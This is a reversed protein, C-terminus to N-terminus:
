VKLEFELMLIKTQFPYSLWLNGKKFFLGIGASQLPIAGPAIAAGATYFVGIHNLIKIGILITGIQKGYISGGPYGKVRGYALEDEFTSGKFLAKLLFTRSTATAEVHYRMGEPLVKLRANIYDGEIYPEIFFGERDGWEYGSRLGIKTKIMGSVINKCVGAYIFNRNLFGKQTQGGLEFIWLNVRANLFFTDNSTFGSSELSEGLKALNEVRAWWKGEIREKSIGLGGTFRLKPFSRYKVLHIDGIKREETIKIFDLARLQELNEEKLGGIREKILFEPIDGKIAVYKNREKEGKVALKVDVKNGRLGIEEVVVSINKKKINWFIESIMRNFNTQNFQSEHFKRNLKEELSPCGPIEIKGFTLNETATLNLLTSNDFGLESVSVNQSFLFFFLM